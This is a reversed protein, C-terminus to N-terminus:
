NGLWKRMVAMQEDTPNPLAELRFSSSSYPELILSIERLLGDRNVMIKLTDGAQKASLFQNLDSAIKYGDIAELEDNVNLGYKWAPGNRLVSTIVTKGDKTSTGIGLGVDKKGLKLNNLKFGTKEFYYPYDIAEAGHVYQRFFGDMKKGVINELEKQFEAESFGHGLKKHYKQYLVRMLDDLSKTGKSASIIELDLLMALIAGKSYYNTNTNHTNENTRYYKIWADFSAESVPQVKNGPMNEISNINSVMLDLFRDSSILGARQCIYDDYYSTFGESIWLMTTYNENDYDFPGLEIPRIRKVNWLHFYEHSVLGLFNGYQIENKYLSRNAHLVCCNAHELGGSSSNANIVLFAYEKCPQEGIVKTAEKCIKQIDTTLRNADYDAQGAMVLTHPVSAVEFSHVAQNGLLIPSDVLEDFNSAKRKWVNEEVVALTTNVKKWTEPPLLNVWYETKEKSDLRMFISAGNLLAMDADVFSTRVSLEFAYVKYFISLEKKSDPTIRWHNKAKKAVQGGECRVSEVHRSFERVLYSGPTWVPMKLDLPKQHHGSIKLEVEVYHTHPEPFSLTYQIKTEANMLTPFFLGFITSLLGSAIRNFQKKM